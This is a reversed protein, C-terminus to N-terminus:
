KLYTAIRMKFTVPQNAQQRSGVVDLDEIFLLEEASELQFIFRRLDVYRGKFSGQFVARTALPGSTEDIKYTLSPLSVRNRTAEDTIGLALPTFDERAPIGNLVHNLDQIVRKAERHQVLTNRASSWDHELQAVRTEAPLVMFSHICALTALLVLIVLMRPFLPALPHRLVTLVHRTTFLTM